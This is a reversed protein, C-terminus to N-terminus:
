NNEAPANEESTNEESANEAPANEESTNEESTYEAPTNEESTNEESTNEESTEPTESIWIEQWGNESREYINDTTAEIIQTYYWDSKTIDPWNIAYTSDADGYRVLMKNIITIAEARTIHSNPRFTGDEYGTIWYMANAALLIAKEAWHGSIDSFQNTDPVQADGLDIFKSILAVFEARTIPNSPNFNGDTDGVVYGGMAMASIAKNSWREPEVDPFRNSDAELTAAYEPKLLRYLAAVVEERTINNNPKVEGDPYGSIYAIHDESILQEPAKLNIYRAYITIDDTIQFMGSVPKTFFPDSYWGEFAFGEKEPVTINDVDIFYKGERVTVAVTKTIVGAQIKVVPTKSPSATAAPRGHNTDGSPSTSAPIYVVSATSADSTFNIKGYTDETNDPTGTVDTIETYASVLQATVNLTEGSAPSAPVMVGSLTVYLNNLQSDGADIKSQLDSVKTSPTDKVGLTVDLQSTTSNVSVPLGIDKIEFIEPATLGEQGLTMGSPDSMLRSDYTVRVVFTGTVKSNNFYNKLDNKTVGSTVADDNSDDISRIVAAYLNKFSTKVNDMNLTVKYDVTNGGSETVSSAYATDAASTKKVQASVTTEVAVPYEFVGGGNAIHASIVPNSSNNWGSHGNVFDYLNTASVTPALTAAALILSLIKKKM